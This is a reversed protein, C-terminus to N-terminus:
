RRPAEGASRTSLVSVRSYDPRRLPTATCASPTFEVGNNDTCADAMPAGAAIWAAIGKVDAASFSKLPMHTGQVFARLRQNEGTTPQVNGGVTQKSTLPPHNTPAKPLVGGDTDYQQEWNDLTAAIGDPADPDTYLMKYLFYSNGPQGPDVLPMGVGFIAETAKPDIASPTTPGALTQHAVHGLATRRIGSPTSLDLGVAPEPPAHCTGFGCSQTIFTMAGPIFVGNECRACANMVPPPAPLPADAAGATFSFTISKALPAGDFARFGRGDEARQPDNPSWLTVSYRVGPAWTGQLTYTVVREVVDYNPELFADGAISAGMADLTGGTVRVSQRVATDPRLFRNFRIRIPANTPVAGDGSQLDPTTAVVSLNPGQRGV